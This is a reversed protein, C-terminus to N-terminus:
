ALTHIKKVPVHAANAAVIAAAFLSLNTHGNNNAAVARGVRRALTKDLGRKDLNAWSEKPNANDYTGPSAKNAASIAWFLPAQSVLWGVPLAYFSYNAGGM